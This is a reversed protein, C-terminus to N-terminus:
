QDYYRYIIWFHYIFLKKSVVKGYQNKKTLNCHGQPDICQVNRCCLVNVSVLQLLCCHVCQVM